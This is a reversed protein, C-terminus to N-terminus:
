HRRGCLAARVCDHYEGPSMGLERSMAAASSVVLLNHSAEEATLRRTPYLWLDRTCFRGECALAPGAKELTLAVLMGLREYILERTIIAM